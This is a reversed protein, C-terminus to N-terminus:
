SAAAARRMLLAAGIAGILLGGAATLFLWLENAGSFKGSTEYRWRELLTVRDSLDTKVEKLQTALLLSAAEQNARVVKALELDSQQKQAALENLRRTEAERAANQYRTEREVVDLVNKTPDIVAPAGPAQAQGFAPASSGVLLAAIVLWHKM